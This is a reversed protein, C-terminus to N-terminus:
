PLVDWGMGGVVQGAKYGDLDLCNDACAPDPRRRRSLKNLIPEQWDSPWQGQMHGHRQADMVADSVM